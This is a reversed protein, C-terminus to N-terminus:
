WSLAYFFSSTKYNAYIDNEFFMCVAFARANKAWYVRYRFLAAKQYSSIAIEFVRLRKYVNSDKYELNLTYTNNYLVRGGEERVGNLRSVINVGYGKYTKAMIGKQKLVGRFYSNWKLLENKTKYEYLLKRKVTDFISYKIFDRGSPYATKFFAYKLDSSFCIFDCLGKNRSGSYLFASILFFLFIIYIRKAM